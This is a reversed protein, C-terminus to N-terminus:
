VVREVVLVGNRDLDTSSVPDKFGWHSYGRYLGYNYAYIAYASGYYNWLSYENIVMIWEWKAWEQPHHFLFAALDGPNAPALGGHIIRWTAQQPTEKKLFPEVWPRVMRFGTEPLKFREETIDYNINRINSEDLTRRMMRLLGIAPDYAISCGRTIMSDSPVSEM